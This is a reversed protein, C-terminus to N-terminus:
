VEAEPDYPQFNELQLNMMLRDSMEDANEETLEGAQILTQLRRVITKLKQRSVTVEDRVFLHDLLQPIKARRASDYILSSRLCDLLVDDLEEANAYAEPDGRGDDLCRRSPFAIVHKPDTIVELKRDGPIHAFPQRGYVMQYLICGLSWVDSPRGAKYVGHNGRRAKQIAEPAMYNPTGVIVDRSIHMTGLPIKQAIGFDILKIRGKVMLFNAPKLDTHVLKTNHVFHVAELMQKWYESLAARPLPHRTHLLINFDLDGLEMMMKLTDGSHKHGFYRLIYDESGEANALTDLLEAEQLLEDRSSQELKKLSVQKMAFHGQLEPPVPESGGQTTPISTPGRVQFVTSFGGEGAKAVKLYRAGRFKTEKPHTLPKGVMSENYNRGDYRQRQAEEFAAQVYPDYGNLELLRHKEAEIEPELEAFPRGGPAIGTTRPRLHSSTQQPPPRPVPATAPRRADDNAMDKEVVAGPVRRAVGNTGPLPVKANLVEDIAPKHHAGRPPMNEKDALPREPRSGAAPERSRLADAAGQNRRSYPFAEKRNPPPAAHSSAKHEGAEEEADVDDDDDAGLQMEPLPEIRMDRVVQQRSPVRSRPRHEYRLPEDQPDDHGTGQSGRARAKEHAYLGDDLKALPSTGQTAQSSIGELMRDTPALPSDQGKGSDSSSHNSSGPQSDKGLKDSSGNRQAEKDDPHSDGVGVGPAEEEEDDGDSEDAGQTVLVRAPRVHNPRAEGPGYRKLTRGVSRGGTLQSSRMSRAGPALAPTSYSFPKSEASGGSDGPVPSSSHNTGDSGSSSKGNLSSPGAHHHPHHPHEPIDGENSIRRPLPEAGEPYARKRGLRPEGADLLQRELTSERSRRAQSSSPRSYERREDSSRPALRPPLNEVSGDGGVALLEQVSRGSALTGKQSATETATRHANYSASRGNATMANPRRSTALPKMGFKTELHPRTAASTSYNAPPAPAGMAEALSRPSHQRRPSQQWDDPDSRRARTAGPAPTPSLQRPDRQRSGPRSAPEADDDLTFPRSVKQIQNPKSISPPSPLPSDGELLSSSALPTRLDRLDPSSSQKLPTIPTITAASSPGTPPMRSRTAIVM